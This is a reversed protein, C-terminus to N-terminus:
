RAKNVKENLLKIESQAAEAFDKGSSKYIIGRSSNILYNNRKESKFISVVDELSGGQAGVGPLLVSLNDFKKINNKLEKLRTAGFVIGCNNKKNWENVKELIRQYVFRGDKLELKEFDSAGTNSTLVLVFNIKDKYDLFPDLSDKGMYPNLTVSDFSFHNFISKAYLTSTNGIDGKKADAISVIDGPILSVTKELEKIGKAGDKEYFAFNIKYAAAYLKTANIIEKNFVFVPNLNSQLHQPIKSQDTDLGVCIFKGELNKKFLKEQATM